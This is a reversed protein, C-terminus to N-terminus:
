SGVAERSRSTLPPMRRRAPLGAVLWVGASLWAAILVARTWGNDVVPELLLSVTPFGIWGRPVTVSLVYAAAEWLCLAIAITAWVRRSRRHAEATRTSPEPGRHWVLAVAAVGLAVVVLISTPGTRPGLAIALGAAIAAGVILALRPAGPASASAPAPASEAVRRMRVGREILLGLTVAAFVVGDIPAGRWFQFAAMIGLTVLWLTVSAPM